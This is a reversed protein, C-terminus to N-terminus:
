SEMMQKLIRDCFSLSINFIQDGLYVTIILNYRLNYRFIVKERFSKCSDIFRYM